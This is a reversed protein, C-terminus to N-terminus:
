VELVAEQQPNIKLAFLENFSLFFAINLLPVVLILGLLMTPITLVVLGLSMIGFSVLAPINRWCAVFSAQLITLLRQEKLFYAIAVAYAFLMATIIFAAVLMIVQLLLGGSYDMNEQALQMAVYVHERAHMLPVSILFNVSAILILIRRCAADKFAKFLWSIDITQQQQVGVIAGYLGATLFPSALVAVFVTLPFQAALFTFIFTLLLMQIFVLPYQKFIQWAQKIWGIAASAPVRRIILKIQLPKEM